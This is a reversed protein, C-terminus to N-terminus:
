AVRECARATARTSRCCARTVTARWAWIGAAYGSPPIPWVIPSVRHWSWPDPKRMRERASRFAHAPSSGIQRRNRYHRLFRPGYALRRWVSRRLTAMPGGAYQKLCAPEV